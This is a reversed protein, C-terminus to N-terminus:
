KTWCTRYKKDQNQSNTHVFRLRLIKRYNKFIIHNGLITESIATVRPRTHASRQLVQCRNQEPGIPFIQRALHINFKAVKNHPQFFLFGFLTHTQYSILENPVNKVKRCLYHVTSHSASQHIFYAHPEEGVQLQGQPYNCLM